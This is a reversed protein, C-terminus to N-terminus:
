LKSNYQLVPKDNVFSLEFKLKTTKNYIKVEYGNYIIWLNIQEHYLDFGKKENGCTLKLLLNIEDLILLLTMGRTFNFKDSYDKNSLYFRYKKEKSGGADHVALIITEKKLGNDM